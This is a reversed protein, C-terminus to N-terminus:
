FDTMNILNGQFLENNFNFFLQQTLDRTKEDKWEFMKGDFTLSHQINSNRSVMMAITLFTQNM